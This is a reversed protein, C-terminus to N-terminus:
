WPIEDDTVDAVPVLPTPVVPAPAPKGKSKSVELKIGGVMQTGMMVTPDLSLRVKKGIWGDTEPGFSEKLLAKKSANLVVGKPKENFFLIAKVQGDNMVEAAVSRITLITPVAFEEKKLYKSNSPAMKDIDM